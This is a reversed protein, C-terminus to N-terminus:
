MATGIGEYDFGIDMEGRIDAKQAVSATFANLKCGSEGILVLKRAPTLAFIKFVLMAFAVVLSSVQLMGACGTFQFLLLPLVVNFHSM